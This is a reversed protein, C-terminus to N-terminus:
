NGVVEVELHVVGTGGAVLNNGVEQSGIDTDEVSGIDAVMCYNVVEVVAVVSNGITVAFNDVAESDNGVGCDINGVAESCADSSDVSYNGEVELYNEAEESCSGDVGSYSGVVVFCSEAVM